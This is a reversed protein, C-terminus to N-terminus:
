LDIKWFILSYLGKGVLADTSVKIIGNEAEVQHILVDGVASLLVAALVTFNILSAPDFKFLRSVGGRGIPDVNSLSGIACICCLISLIM